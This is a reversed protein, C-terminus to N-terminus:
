IAMDDHEIDNISSSLNLIDLILVDVIHSVTIRYIKLVTPKISILENFILWIM